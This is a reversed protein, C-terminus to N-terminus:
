CYDKDPKERITMTKCSRGRKYTVLPSCTESATKIKSLETIIKKEIHWLDYSQQMRLWIEPGNGVFKGIRLAMEATIPNTCALIRHLQQRSIGMTKAAASVTLNLNDLVDERLIEGPHVPERKLPRKIFYESMIEAGEHYQELDIKIANGENWEFTICWPGNVHISYRKPKGQLGHFNFGPIKLEDLGTAQDIADLRRLARQQLDHRM